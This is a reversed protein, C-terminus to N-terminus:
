CAASLILIIRGFADSKDQVSRLVFMRPRGAGLGASVKDPLNKSRGSLVEVEVREAV